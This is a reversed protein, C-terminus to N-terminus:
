AEKVSIFIIDDFFFYLYSQCVKEQVSCNSMIECKDDLKGTEPCVNRKKQM